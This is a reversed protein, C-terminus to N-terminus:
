FDEVRQRIVLHRTWLNVATPLIKKDKPPLHNLHGQLNLMYLDEFDSPYLYKFDREEIIHKNLDARRLVVKKMYDYRYMSFVEIKVVSLIRMYTRVARHAGEFTHIAIDDTQTLLSEEPPPSYTSALDSAWNNKQVLVDSSSISWAHKPTAPIEEELPKWWDHWLNVNLIHANEIDEDDSSQAQADPDMDDDIQLDEKNTSTPPPPPPPVQSSVSARLSGSAESPGAPPPPPPPQHPPSGHPMKQSDCRKKKKKRAEDLDASTHRSEGIHISMGWSPTTMPPILSTDQQITVSVMLEAETEATIKENDAKSPKDNFFLDGFSLDKTLHQLSSLTGTSSAPEERIVKLDMHELNPEAHVVPSPLPQSAAADYPNPRAQGKDLEDPNPGAQGEDQDNPNPRAQGEGQVGADIRLVDKDSKVESDMLGLEAYLSSSEDHGSSDTPTSTRRQFINILLARRRKELIPQYKRSEPERIVVSPLPGWSANYISKLSEELARQIDAEEDDVIPEKDPIGQIDVTILNGPIPKRFVERKTGKASFKLYGLVHKENPLHLPSDPIPYFKHKRVNSLNRVLKPYGLENVFIILADFSPPSSFSKNNNVPTIQLSDRLTDKTLNFWQEDLQCKYCGATAIKYIPNSQSKEVDLYCNSKGIPVWRIHSLIQDDTRTPPAMTPAQDAPANVNVDAMTYGTYDADAYAMLAMVNDKPYLLGWNITGRLYRFVRKLAKLYNKTPSAQYWVVFDLRTLQIRLPDENLKIQDVMPTDVHDCTDMGFKKLIELSFKSQNIFIGRPSQSVQLCAKPDILSFIIDDIHIQVLRIHKGIQQTFLTPDVAGKSVKNDMLFRSLTDYWARHAYVEEKLEGNLFSTKDDMQYITINKNAANTIFIRIAEIHAVPAFSEEYDIGEDESSSADFSPELAFVNIFPNNDVPAVLNDEMFTSEAAVGALNVPAQVAPAPSVPREVRPPELYENFMPQFLIELYKNTPPVYPTTPVLNPVLWLSIQRPMLFISAPGKKSSAYGVFIGIDTTPQLKGLNKSDNIPYCLAGLVRFFTLDPKKNHVLEYSTKNHHTHILSQNQTYCATAMAEAWLFMLAKSFILMTRADEILIHNRRKVVGNVKAEELIERITEVSEKLHRLYHLHAEKNNRLRLVIPEVDIAYKGPALVKPKVHDKSVFEKYHQKIKDNEARFLDNQAQLVTVKETLQTIHSNVVRVKLARDTDSHTEQLYSIQKKLQRIVNDKGQLSAQMKGIVFIIMIIMTVRIVYILFSLKLNWVVHRVITNAVHMKTFRAVTLEYNTKVFFVEKSLCEAILNDNAILLNKQEIADHKRDVVNQAVEAELEEFVDKMEKIEKTLDKQIGKFNEKLTKFFPIVEKLYCEKTKEFGREGETLGIPTIREHKLKSEDQQDQIGQGITWHRMLRDQFTVARPSDIITYDHKYEFGTADWRPKTLNLQTQYSEIGLKEKGKGPVKPLPQYKEFEPERIVVPPLLGSACQVHEELKGMRKMMMADTTSQQQQSPPPLITTTTTTTTTKTEKLLQHVKPSEPRSTLDIIQTTMPPISSTDQQITVYVMSEAETEATAKDNDAESPKDSFFLDGFSFDKTLHQLSSLTGSSSAHEELIVQEKVTLKLNEQVKPYATATFWEDMQEPPPESSVDAVDLDIHKRDSGDHVVPSPIPQYAEANGPDPGAQGQGGADAGPVDEEHEEES